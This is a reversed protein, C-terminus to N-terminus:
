FALFRGATAECVVFLVAALLAARGYQVLNKPQPLVFFVVLAAAVCLVTPAQPAYWFNKGSWALVAVPAATGLAGLWGPRRAHWTLAGLPAGLLGLVGWFIIYKEGWFGYLAHQYIYYAAVMSELFLVPKVGALWSTTSAAALAVALVVWVGIHTTIQSALRWVAAGVTGDYAVTDSYKALIGLAAGLLLSAVLEAAARTRLRKETRGDM